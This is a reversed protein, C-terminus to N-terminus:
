GSGSPGMISVYEGRRIEIDIGDLAKVTEGGMYYYKKAERVIVALSQIGASDLRNEAM